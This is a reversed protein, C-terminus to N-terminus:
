FDDNESMVCVTTRRDKQVCCHGTRCVNRTIFLLLAEIRIYMRRVNSNDYFRAIM